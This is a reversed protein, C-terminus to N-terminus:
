VVSKRDLALTLVVVGTFLPSKRLTRIAHRVDQALEDFLRMGREDRVAEKIREVGGFVIMAQRHAEEPSLRRERILREAEMEVHFAIEHRLEREEASRRFLARLRETVESVLRM